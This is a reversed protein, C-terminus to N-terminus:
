GHERSVARLNELFFDLHFELFHGKLSKSRGKVKYSQVLDALIVRYNDAKRNGWFNTTINKLSKWAAREM